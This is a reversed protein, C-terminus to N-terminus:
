CTTFAHGLIAASVSGLLLNPKHDAIRVVTSAVAKKASQMAVGALDPGKAGGAFTIGCGYVLPIAAKM